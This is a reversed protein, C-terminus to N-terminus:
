VFPLHLKQGFAFDAGDVNGATEGFFAPFKKRIQLVVIIEEAAFAFAADHGAAADGFLEAAKGVFIVDGSFDHVGVGEAVTEGDIEKLFVLVDARKASRM